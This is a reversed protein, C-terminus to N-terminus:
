AVKEKSNYIISHSIMEDAWVYALQCIQARDFRTNAMLYQLAIGAFYDRLSVNM